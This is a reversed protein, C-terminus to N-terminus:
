CGFGPAEARGQLLHSEVVKALLDIILYLVDVLHVWGRWVLGRMNTTLITPLGQDLWIGHLKTSCKGVLKFEM